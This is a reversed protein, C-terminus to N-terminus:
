IKVEMHWPYFYKAMLCILIAQPLLPINSSCSINKNLFIQMNWTLCFQQKCSKFFVNFFWVVPLCFCIGATIHRLPKPNMLKWKFSATQYLVAESNERPVYERKLIMFVSGSQCYYRLHSESRCFSKKFHSRQIELEPKWAHITISKKM